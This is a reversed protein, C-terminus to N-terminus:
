RPVVQRWPDTATAATGDQLARLLRALAEAGAAVGPGPTSFHHEGDMLFVRQKQV